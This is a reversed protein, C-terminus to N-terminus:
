RFNFILKKCQGSYINSIIIRPTEVHRQAHVSLNWHDKGEQFEWRHSCCQMCWANWSRYSLSHVKGILFQALEKFITPIFQTLMGPPRYSRSSPPLLFDCHWISIEHLYTCSSPNEWVASWISRRWSYPSSKEDEQFHIAPYQVEEHEWNQCRIHQGCLCIGLLLHPGRWEFRRSPLGDRYTGLERTM